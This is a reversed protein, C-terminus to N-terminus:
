FDTSFQIYGFEETFYEDKDLDPMCNFSTCTYVIITEWDVLQLEEIKYFIQPMIQLEMKRESSCRPCKPVKENPLM